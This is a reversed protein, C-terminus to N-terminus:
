QGVVRPEMPGLLGLLRQQNAANVGLQRMARVLDEVFYGFEEHTIALGSHAEEMTRGTYACPGGTVECFQEVLLRRLDKLDTRKFLANIRKDDHVFGLTVDVL